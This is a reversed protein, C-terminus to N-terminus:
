TGRTITDKQTRFLVSKPGSFSVQRCSLEDFHISHYWDRGVVTKM